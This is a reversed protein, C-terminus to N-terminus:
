CLTRLSAYLLLLEGMRVGQVNGFQSIIDELEGEDATYPMNGVYLTKSPKSPAREGGNGYDALVVRSSSLTRAFSPTSSRAALGFLSVTKPVVRARSAVLAVRAQTRLANAFLSAM